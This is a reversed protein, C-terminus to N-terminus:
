GNAAAKEPFLAEMLAAVERQAEPLVHAYTNMTLGIQSHGLYAMIMRPHVGQAVLLSACSHRLDHFRVDPLGAGQLLSKFHRTLNRPEIPTGITSPFVLGWDQWAPGAALREALQRARHARLAAVLVPPLPMTRKSRTTKPEVLERSGKRRQLAVAVSLSGGELDVDQWRLGLIEGMRLGLALAVRYLAEHRTGRAADLLVRGQERTLPTIEHRKARPPETLAAVNRAVRGWRLAQNLARRLVARAYSVTRPSLGRALLENLTTQVQEPTLKALQYRGLAPVLYLRIVLAYSDYTRPRVAPKAAEELWRTLFQEVSQREVAVPVGQQQDRLLVKLKEAVEKRTKGYVVKRKRKGNAWGLELVCCWKGDSERQYIAGEGHGRRGSM